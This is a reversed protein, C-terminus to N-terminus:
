SLVKKIKSGNNLSDKLVAVFHFLM